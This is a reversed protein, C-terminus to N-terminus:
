KLLPLCCPPTLFYFVAGSDSPINSLKEMRMVKSSPIEYRRALTPHIWNGVCLGLNEFVSMSGSDFDRINLALQMEENSIENPPGLVYSNGLCTTFATFSGSISVETIINQRFQPSEALDQRESDVDPIPLRTVKGDGLCGLNCHGCSWIDGSTTFFISHLHGAALEKVRYMSLSNIMRPVYQKNGIKKKSKSSSNLGLQGHSDTGCSFVKGDESLFLSHFIGAAASIIKLSNLPSEKSANLAFSTVELPVPYYLNEDPDLILVEKLHGLQGHSALGCTMPIGDVPTDCATLVSVSSM